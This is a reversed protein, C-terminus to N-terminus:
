LHKQIQMNTRGYLILYSLQAKRAKKHSHVKISVCDANFTNETLVIYHPHDSTVKAAKCIYVLSSLLCNGDLPCSVKIRWNCLASTPKAINENLINKNHSNIISAFHPMSSYSVKVNNRNFVKSLKHTKPFIKDTLLLIKKGINTTVNCGYSGEDETKIVTAIKIKLLHSFSSKITLDVTPFPM